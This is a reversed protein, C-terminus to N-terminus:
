NNQAGQEIWAFIQQKKCDAGEGKVYSNMTGLMSSKLRGNLAYTQVNDYGELNVGADSRGSNHCEICFEVLVPEIVEAYSVNTTDCLNPDIPEATVYEVKECSTILMLAPLVLMLAVIM